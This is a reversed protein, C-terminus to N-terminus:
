IKNHYFNGGGSFIVRKKLINIKENIGDNKNLINEPFCLTDELGQYKIDLNPNTDKNYKLIPIIIEKLFKTNCAYIHNSWRQDTNAVKYWKYNKNVITINYYKEPEPVWSFSEVKYPYDNNTHLLWESINQPTCYLFGPNKSNSLKVQAYENEDLINSVDELTKNLNYEKSNLLLFDNECFIFYKTNCNEVLQIFANLIGINEVDGIYNCSYDIAIHKEVQSFEQFFILRNHIINFLGNHLHSDLTQKLINHKKWTLYGITFDTM